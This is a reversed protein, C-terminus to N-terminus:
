RKKQSQEMQFGAMADALASELGEGGALAENLTV